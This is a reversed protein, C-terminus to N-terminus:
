SVTQQEDGGNVQLIRLAFDARVRDAHQSLDLGNLQKIRELRYRMTKHHIFLRDAAAKQSCNSDFFTRLTLLLSGDHERDYAVLPATVEEIFAQLDPDSGTGLLLRVIGLEDYLSMSEAGLRRAATLATKAQELAKSLTLPDQHVGSVGWTITLGPLVSLAAATWCGVLQRMSAADRAPTVAVLHDGHVTIITRRSVEDNHKIARVVERSFQEVEAAGGTLLSLNVMDGYVVQSPGSLDVGMHRARSRAAIRHEVPGQLLDWLCQELAEARARSAASQQLHALSCAMAVQSCAVELIDDGETPGILIIAGVRDGGAMVPYQWATTRAAGEGVSRPTCTLSADVATPPPTAVHNPRKTVLQGDPGYIAVVCGLERSAVEAIAALTPTGLLAELLARQLTATRRFVEVRHEVATRTTQLETLMTSQEDYLRANEIAISAFDALMVLREVERQTFVSARRRWVELVGIMEGQLTLPVALASQTQEQVALAMFDQSITSDALYDDIKSPQGTSFVRGAVGEGRRMRLKATDAIRHGVCSRMQLEDGKRLLVGCIDASLLDLTRRAISHLVQDLDRVSRMQETVARLVNSEHRAAQAVELAAETDLQHGIWVCAQQLPLRLDAPLVQTDLFVSVSCQPSSVLSGDVALRTASGAGDAGRPDAGALLELGEMDGALVAVEVELASELLDVLATAARTAGAPSTTLLGALRDAPTAALMLTGNEASRTPPVM